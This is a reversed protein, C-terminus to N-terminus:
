VSKWFTSLKERSKVDFYMEFDFQTKCTPSNKLFFWKKPNRKKLNWRCTIWKKHLFLALFLNGTTIKMLFHESFFSFFLFFKEFKGSMHCLFDVNELFKWMHTIKLFIICDKSFNWKLHKTFLNILNEMVFTFNIIRM